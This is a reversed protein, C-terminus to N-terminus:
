CTINMHMKCLKKELKTSSSFFSAGCKELGRIAFLHHFKNQNKFVGKQNHNGTLKHQREAKTATAQLLVTQSVQLTM